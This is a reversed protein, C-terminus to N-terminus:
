PEPGSLRRLSQHPNITPILSVPFSRGSKAKMETLLDAIATGADIAVSVVSQGLSLNTKVASM